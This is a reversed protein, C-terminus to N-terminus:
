DGLCYLFESRKDGDLFATRYYIRSDCIVPTSFVEDGLHNKGLEEFTSESARYIFTDGSENTAFIMDNVLVPSASFNGGLRHKWKEKGSDSAWCAAIGADLTGFLYGNRILLSPVYVRNGNEWVLKSTGDAQVATMHNKPYGGSTFIRTGDTVTSTVCETTAGDTEWIVKGTLPDFSSVKDCGTLFLQDRGAAHLIIPSPYNPQKPREHRWVTKGSVRDFAVLAGGGKNDSSSIVLAQYLAPSAGYGQHEIYDSVKSQWVVKGELDLATTILSQNNPFNVYIREGDCAPTSSAATSRENKRMGGSEHVTTKWREAGTARDLCIIMQAGVSEDATQLYIQNGVICM